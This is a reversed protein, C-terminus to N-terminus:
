SCAAVDAGKCMLNANLQVFYNLPIPLVFYKQNDAPNFSVYM